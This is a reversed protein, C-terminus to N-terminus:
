ICDKAASPPPTKDPTPMDNIQRDVKAITKALDLGQYQREIEEDEDEGSGSSSSSESDENASERVENSEVAFAAEADDKDGENDKANDLSEVAESEDAFQEELPMKVSHLHTKHMSDRIQKKVSPDYDEDSSYDDDEDVDVDDNDIYDDDNDDDCEDDGAADNNENSPEDTAAAVGPEAARVKESRPPQSAM